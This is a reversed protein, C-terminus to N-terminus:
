LVGVARALRLKALAFEYRANDRNSLSQERLAEADLVEVNTSAGAQYRNRVVRLNETAQVVASEAVTMRSEAEARDSWARRVQLAVTTELDAKQYSVAAAHRDLSASRKRAQGGDFLNWRFSVGAMWFEDDTLFANEIYMYGGTLALQPRSQARAADSQRRLAKSRYELAALEQRAARADATLEDLSAGAAVISDIALAPDLSVPAGLDRGLIRNYAARAYDLGYQAQLSKQEADALTVSAALYENQPVDGFEFRNRTDATHTRLSAVYSDAVDVASEARLVAVYHEAVALKIDQIVAGLQGEAAKAGFEAAEVGSRIAGGSYLPLTVQAGASLYDDGDFVPGTSIPGLSFGPATDFQTYGSTVGLQPLRAARAEDLDYGAADRSAEASAIQRHSTLAAAWADNLTEATAPGAAVLLTAALFHIVPKM